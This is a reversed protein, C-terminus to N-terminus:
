PSSDKRRYIEISPGPREVTQFGSFPLFFADQPDYVATSPRGRTADIRWVLAYKEDALRRLPWPVGSYLRLPSTHFVIWDPTRGAPDGFSNTAPNYFWPHFQVDHLDLLSYSSGADHLTAEPELNEKLWRAALVRTDTKALLADFWVCNVLAPGGTVVLLAILVAREPLAARSAIWLTGYRLAVGASLCAIPVLPLVYRFFVTQGSGIAVYFAVAFTGIVIAARRHHRVFPVVGIAAAIFIPVGLGYPLSRRIHYFWGRGLNLGHGASLHTATFQFDRAFTSFDLIAYPTALVFGALCMAAFVVSPAWSRASLIGIQPRSWIVVQAGAMAAVIAAASYKTSAALGGLLGALAFLKLPIRSGAAQRVSDVAGMLILLSSTVLLTTLIDTMAFHSDRVHLIAVALFCGALLGTKEDAIRRGLRYLVVITTAGCLAVFARALVLYTTYAVPSEPSALLRIWTAVKFIAAFVYFTLSPWHFFGPNLDGNLMTLSHGLATEEDPRARTYPLGFWIPVLRLVAGLLVIAPLWLQQTWRSRM